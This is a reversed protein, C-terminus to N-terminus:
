GGAEDCSTRISARPALGFRALPLYTSVTGPRTMPAANVTPGVAITLSQMNIPSKLIRGDKGARTLQAAPLPGPFIM